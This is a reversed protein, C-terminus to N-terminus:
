VQKPKRFKVFYIATALIITVATAAAAILELPTSTGSLVKFGGKKFGRNNDLNTEGPVHSAEAWITYNGEAVGGTDWEFILEKLFDAPATVNQTNVASDGYYATVNFTEPRTGNNKVSVTINVKGGARMEHVEDKEYFPVTDVVKVTTVTTKVDTIIIDHIIPKNSFYGDYVNHAILNLGSDDLQTKCLDLPSEGIDDVTFSITALTGSGSKGPVGSQMSVKYWVYGLTDNIEEQWIVPPTPESPFFSGLTIYTATLVATSYNLFFEYGFLETANGVSVNIAFNGGQVLTPDITEEPDVYLRTPQLVNSFYGDYENHVIYSQGPLTLLWYRPSGYPKDATLILPSEGIDDVTFSITALTGSGSKGVHWGLPVTVAYWVYGSADNIEKQWIQSDAPFFSGREISTATLVATTYNLLFEYGGLFSIDKVNIDITFSTGATMTTDIISPPDVYLTPYAPGYVPSVVVMNVVNILFSIIFISLLSKKL